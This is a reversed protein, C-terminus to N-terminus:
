FGTPVIPSFLKEQAAAVAGLPGVADGFKGPVLQVGQKSIPMSYINLAQQIPTFLYDGAESLVGGVIIKEPNLLQILIAIGKGLDLGIQSLIRITRQDGAKAAEVISAPELFHGNRASIKALISDPDHKIAEEALRVAATGSAVAELCGKKGCACNVESSDFLPAHSFEGAFGKFGHYVKGDVVIGIGIGWGVFIGLVHSATNPQFHYEALTMARADNELYVPLGIREELFDTLPEDSFNLYTFNKGAAADILGPMSLGAAIIRQEPLAQGALFQKIERVLQMATEREDDLKLVFQHTPSVAERATNFLTLRVRFKTIAISLIYFADPLLQYLEAKRGGSSKAFGEKRVLTSDILQQMLTHTTPLSTGLYRSIENVTHQQNRFLAKIIRLKYIYNKQDVGGKKFAEESTPAFLNM